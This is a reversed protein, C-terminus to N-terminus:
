RVVALKCGSTQDEFELRAFYLGDPLLRGAEDRRDWTRAHEGAELWDDNLVRVRRGQVDSVALLARGPRPLVFRLTVGSRLPNPAAPRLLAVAAAGTGPVPVATVGGSWRFVDGNPTTAAYLTNDNARLFAFVEHAGPLASETRWTTGRDDSVCAVSDPGPQFGIRLKGEADEDIAYVRVAHVPGIMIRGTSDWTAGGDSSRFVYGGHGHVWGTAWLLSDRTEYFSDISQMSAPPFRVTATAWSAGGNTSRYIPGWGGALLVGGASELLCTVGTGLGSLVPLKTWSQGANSSSFVNGGPSTGALIRGDGTEILARVTTASTLNATLQWSTGGNTSRYVDGLPYCGAYLSGDGAVLLSHVALAGPLTATPTWTSGGDTSRFVTGTPATAAYLAGDAGQALDYVNWAGELEGCKAWLDSGSAVDRPAPLSDLYSVWVDEDGRSGESSESSTYLVRGGPMVFPTCANRDNNVASGANVPTGWASGSWPSVWLDGAGYGGPRNGGFDSFYLKQKDFSIFPRVEAFASNVPAGVSRPNLWQFISAGLDAVWVDNNRVFYLQALDSSICPDSGQLLQVPTGWVGGSRVSVFVYAGRSFFLTDGTVTASPRREGGATNISPGVNVPTGWRGQVSDWQAEYIDWQGQFGPRAPGNLGDWIIFFLKRHDPTVWPNCDPNYGNSEVSILHSWGVGPQPLATVGADAEISAWGWAAPTAAPNAPTEEGFLGCVTRALSDPIGWKGPDCALSARPALTALVILAAAIRAPATAAAAAPARRNHAGPQM